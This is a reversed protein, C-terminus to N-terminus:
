SIKRIADIFFSVGFFVLACGLCAIIIRYPKEKIFRRTKGVVISVLAYWSLDATIHGMYYVAVGAAGATEYSRMIYGLGIIAWWIIFYPNSATLVVSSLIMGGSGGRENGATVSVRNRAAKVTMDAGMASLMVGGVLGIVTQATNSKLVVDFGLFIVTVLALELMAHGAIIIFGARQGVSLSKRITYTLLPGPMVAGSFGVLFASIFIAIMDM